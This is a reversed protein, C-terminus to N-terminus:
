LQGGGGWLSCEVARDAQLVTAAIFDNNGIVHNM